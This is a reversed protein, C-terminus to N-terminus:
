QLPKGKCFGGRRGSSKSSISAKTNTEKKVVNVKPNEEAKLENGNAASANEKNNQTNEENPLTKVHQQQQQHLPSEDMDEM